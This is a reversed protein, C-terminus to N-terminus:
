LQQGNTRIVNQYWYFSDKRLRRCEKPDDDTRDVYVFGYRKKVGNSTSLLDIASWPCYALVEVGADMAKGMAEIHAKLYAIRYDDHVQGDETLTDFAGLGNETIMLPKNYRGYLDRLLYELGTPDISWDWDSTELNPNKCMEYFGPHTEFGSIDGKKGSYNVGSYRIEKGDGEPCSKACDSYYYNLALFDSTGEKILEMDGPQIEPALGHKELYRMASKTYFGKFYIDLYYANRLDHANLAAMADAAKSTLPYVPAYGLAAGVLGGPVLEHVLKCAIAHALNMHHNIQYRLQNNTRYEEPIYCKATWYQVIISQENITTWYKVKDRFENIIYRAYYEFDTVVQRNLWGGYKEVLAWPLDYHYLTVIPEIQNALLEDILNRYFQIGKENVAGIGDPFVRSWAISFRYAKFGMEKMLAVDEKYHHYHDSAIEATAFGRTTYNEQNIIDQQSAKKGDEYAAGEVQYASTSAGWLFDNPFLHSM